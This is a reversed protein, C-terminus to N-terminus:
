KSIESILFMIEQRLQRGYYRLSICGQYDDKIRKGTNPKKYPRTFQSKPIETIESWYNIQEEKNHYEHIHILARFRKEDVDFAKRFTKLFYKILRADSNIFSLHDKETKGGECWYLLACVIKFDNKLIKSSGMTREVRQLIKENEALIRNKVTKSAKKRGNDGLDSIRKKAKESLEISRTWLSATSKSIKLKESIERFSFGKKRLNVAEKKLNPKM